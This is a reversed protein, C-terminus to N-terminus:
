QSSLRQQPKRISHVVYLYIRLFHLSLSFDLHRDGVCRGAIIGAQANHVAQHTVSLTTLALRKGLPGNLAQHLFQLLFLILKVGEDSSDGGVPGMGALTHGNLPSEISSQLYSCVIVQIM